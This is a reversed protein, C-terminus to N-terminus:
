FNFILLVPNIRFRLKGEDACATQSDAPNTEPDQEAAVYSLEEAAFADDEVPVLAYSGNRLGVRICM